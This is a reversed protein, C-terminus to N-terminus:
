HWAAALTPTLSQLATPDLTMQGLPPPSFSAMASRLQEVDSATAYKGDALEIRDLQKTTSSYWGQVTVTDNTGIITMLLDNGSQQFWFQENSVGAGILLKDAGGDTDTADITDRGGALGFKFEDAGQGGILSDNGAGGDLSDNGDGGTLVNAGGNGILQNDLTNGTGNIANSGTLSLNELNAGLTWTVGSQVLDAGESANETVSDTALDVVYRDDGMGGTMADAGGGGNLLDNGGGGNLANAGSNGLISNDLANGTGGIGSTGTLTLNEVNAALSTITISSEVSDIGEGVAEVVSDGAAQVVFVDDGTGGTMTDNGTGGDLRDNGAGGTLANAGSNGILINDLANGTASLGSSGTLTLNEVTASLTWTVSSQVLDIGEDANETVTDSANDVVYVDNGTGGILVDAGTGGNLTDNGDGGTLTNIGTNGTIMNDLANGTGSIASSGTLTLNEINAGLTYAIVSQVADVGEDALETVVDGAVDVVYIDNGAGGTLTDIGTGGNLTDNGDGGALVNAATNGTLVNDLANGTGDVAGVGTLTLNEINTGLTWSLATQVLDATGQGAVEAITDELGDVIYTDNGGGGVLTDTGGGGDLTNNGSNGTVVNDLTNGTGSINGSGILTLNELNAGLTRTVSSQVLDTGDGASETTVDSANDVVYTDDGVGGSLNDAGGAGNLTDNGIGGTLINIGSNGTLVNDAANGTGNLAASGTLTLNELDVALTYTLSSQVTDVGEGTAESITDGANDVVFIDDGLGGELTDAGTGGDLTDNGDGGSLTNAGTNGTIVNAASNGTGSNGLTGTLTLNEIEAGLTWSISSQVLDATGQAANETVVDNSNDVIYTDNGAGGALTDEGAGGDLLNNGSTGTLSNNLSNGTGNINGSGTLTLNEINGALTWAISSQVVDVGEDTSETAVDNVNDVVYTDNGAGGILTDAGAAGNLLDNGVGGTLINVGSNGTLVNDLDNGTGNIATTTMLTLNEIEASLTHTVWAQVLDTGENALEVIDDGVDDVNYTDNGTGGILTDAGAAGDLINNATNGRITNAAANGTGNIASAGTLTLNELNLGLTRTVSSEVLDTGEGANENTADSASDVIYTDDGVGGSMTDTGSGGIIIDNGLGGSLNNAGTNGIIINDLANGTGAVGSSGALTLNEVDSGLTYAISSQVTDIGEDAVESVVDGVNDVVYTDNGAGGSLSDAGTGGNLTDNGAGGFLSNAGTNGIIINDLENGTGNIALAGTLTLNETNASLSWDMSSQVLDKGENTTEVVTDLSNDVVYIDDGDGGSMTDAGTGGSLTNAAVNGVVNNDLTNGTGSIASGGSLVLNEINAGLTWNISAHITDTGESVLEVAKDSATDVYYHDDGQGGTMTDAGTGGDIINAGSNGVIANAIANGTGDISASGILTLNEFNSGLSWSVTSKVLDVGEGSAETITDGSSDVVYTDNGAGGVITDSGAGGDLTDNGTGGSLVDDDAGGDLIDSGGGGSLNDSGSEGYLEDDGVFDAEDGGILTDDGDAGYLTDDGHKGDLTNNLSNGNITNYNAAGTGSLAAPGVLTLVEISNNITYSVSAIVEDFIGVDGWDFAYDAVDDVYFTDIGDGGWMNDIGAGGDLINKGDDGFLYDNGAGGSLTDDGGQGHLEDAGDLGTLSNAGDNGWIFTGQNSGTVNIDADGVLDVRDIYDGAVFDISSYVTDDGGPGVEIVQDGASDVYYSDNGAGGIMTDAGIGGQLIDAGDGGDLTDDGASGDLSDDGKDGSLVNNGQTGTINNSGVNGTGNTAGSGSLILTEVDNALTHSISSIVVDSGGEESEIVVDKADDVHYTDNGGRGILTDAGTQGDLINDGETGSIRNDLSNGAGNLDGGHLILSEINAGLSYSISADVSDYGGDSQEVVVDGSNEVVYTDNGIRGTMTDAGALGNIVDAGVGGTLDADGSTTGTVYTSVLQSRTLDIGNAFKFLDIGSTASAFQDVINLVDGSNKLEIRLSNPNNPDISLIIDSPAVTGTFQITDIEGPVLDSELVTDSGAGQGFYYVNAGGGGELHDNGAGGIQIDNGAAGHIETAFMGATAVTPSDSTYIKNIEGAGVWRDAGFQFQLSRVDAATREVGAAALAGNLQSLYTLQSIGLGGAVQDLSAIASKWFQLKQIDDGTPALATLGTIVTSVNMTGAFSDTSWNYTVGSFVDSFISQVLVRAAIAEVLQAWAGELSKAANLGPNAGEPGTAQVFNTGAFNELAVLHNGDVFEGRNQSNASASRTGWLWAIEDIRKMIDPPVGLTAIPWNVLDVLAGLLKANSSASVRLGSLTGSGRIAPLRGYVDALTAEGTDLTDTASNQFWVDGITTSGSSTTVVATETIVNGNVTTNVTTETLLISQIGLSSLSHLEGSDTFGDSDADIWVKLVSFNSDSADVTGDANSDFTRLADFGNTTANPLTEQTGFLETVNDIIGNGNTDVALFGDSSSIWGTRQAFGNADLDFYATSSALNTTSVGNGDLDIVLPSNLQSATSISSSAILGLSSPATPASLGPSLNDPSKYGGGDQGQSNSMMGPGSSLDSKWRKAEFDYGLLKLEEITGEYNLAAEFEQNSSWLSSQHIWADMRWQPAEYGPVPGTDNPVWYNFNLTGGAVSLHQENIQAVNGRIMDEEYNPNKEVDLDLILVPKTTGPLLIALAVGTAKWSSFWGDGYVQEGEVPGSEDFEVFTYAEGLTGVHGLPTAGDLHYLFEIQEISLFETPGDIAGVLEVGNYFLKDGAKFNTIVDGEGLHFENPGAGGDLIDRKGDDGQDNGGYLVDAGNGAIILDEDAGGEIVDDGSGTRITDNGAGGDITNDGADPAEPDGNIIDVGAGGNNDDSDEDWIADNGIGGFIHDDGSGGFIADNGDDGNLTDNHAGGILLDNGAGGSIDDDGGGDIIIDNGNGGKLTDDEDSLAGTSDEIRGFIMDNLTADGSEGGNWLESTPNTRDVTFKPVENVDDALAGNVRVQPASNAAVFVSALENGYFDSATIGAGDLQDAIVSWVDQQWWNKLVNLAPQLSAERNQVAGIEEGLYGEIGALEAEAQGFQVINAADYTLIKNEHKTFVRFATLAEQQTPEYNSDLSQYLGFIQSEVYRRKTHSNDGNSNYRIEYWAEARDNANIAQELSSGLLNASQYVLSLFVARERSPPVTGAPGPAGLIQIKIDVRNEYTELLEDWIPRLIEDNANPLAFTANADGTWERLMTNLTARLNGTTTAANIVEQAKEQLTKVQGDAPDTHTLAPNYGMAEITKQLALPTDEINFGMGITAKHDPEANDLYPLAESGELQKLIAWAYDLYNSRNYNETTTTDETSLLNFTFV